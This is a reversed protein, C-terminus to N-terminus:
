EIRKLYRDLADVRSTWFTRYRAIWDTAEKMPSGLLRCRHIRGDKRRAILGARGLLRLHKSIAPASVGHPRALETVSAEGRALRELIGRRIPHSLAAFTSDLRAAKNNVM